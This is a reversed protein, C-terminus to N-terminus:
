QILSARELNTFDTKQEELMREFDDDGHTKLYSYESESIPIAFLWAVRKSGFDVTNLAKGWPFPATLYLHPLATSPDYRRVLNTMVTGPRYVSDSHIISFAASALIEPFFDPPNVCMAALEIRVPFEGSVWPMPHDSLRITSYSTIGENPQDRCFLIGVTQTESENAYDRVRPTGGFVTAVYQAIAQNETSVPADESKM